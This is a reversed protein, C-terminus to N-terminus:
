KRKKLFSLVGKGPLGGSSNIGIVLHLGDEHFRALVIPNDEPGKAYEKTANDGATWIRVKDPSLSFLRAGDVSYSFTRINAHPYATKRVGNLSWIVVSDKTVAHFHKNDPSLGIDLIGSGAPLLPVM